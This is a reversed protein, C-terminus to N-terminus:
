KPRIKMKEPQIKKNKDRTQINWTDYMSSGRKKNTNRQKIKIRRKQRPSIDPCIQHILFM